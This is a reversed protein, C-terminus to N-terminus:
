MVNTLSTSPYREPCPWCNHQTLAQCRSYQSAQNRIRTNTRVNCACWPNHGSSMFLTHHLMDWCPPPTREAMGPIVSLYARFKGGISAQRLLRNKINTSMVLGM